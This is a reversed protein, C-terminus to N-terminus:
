APRRGRRSGTRRLRVCKCECASGAGRTCDKGVRSARAKVRRRGGPFRWVRGIPQVRVSPQRRDRALNIKICRNSRALCGPAGIPLAPQRQASEALIPSLSCGFRCRVSAAHVTTRPMRVAPRAVPLRSEGATLQWPPEGAQADGKPHRGARALGGRGDSGPGPRGELSRDAPGTAGAELQWHLRTWKPGNAQIRGGGLRDIHCM